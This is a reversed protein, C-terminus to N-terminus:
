SKIILSRERSHKGTRKSFNEYVLTWSKVGNIEVLDTLLEDELDVLSWLKQKKDTQSM